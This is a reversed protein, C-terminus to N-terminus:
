LVAMNGNEVRVMKDLFLPLTESLKKYRYPTVKIIKINRKDWVAEKM